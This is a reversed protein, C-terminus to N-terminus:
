AEQECEMVYFSPLELVLAISFKGCACAHM